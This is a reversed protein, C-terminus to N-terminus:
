FSGSSGGHSRGSSSTHTSTGGGSSSSSSEREIKRRNTVTGTFIDDSRTLHLSGARTYDGADNKAVVSLLKRKKRNATIFALVFGGLISPFILNTWFSKDVGGEEVDYPKGDRAQQILDDCTEAYAKFGYYYDGNSIYNIFSDVLYEQGYDTFAEKGFGYVSIAWKRNEMDLAFLIGDDNEGYGYGMYDFFDDAFAQPGKGGFDPQTCIAIELEQRESIENLIELIELQEDETLLGAEDVLLELQREEPIADPGSQEASASVAFSFCFILALIFATFGKKKM